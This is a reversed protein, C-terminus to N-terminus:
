FKVQGMYAQSKEDSFGYYTKGMAAAGTHGMWADVVFQPIGSDVSVTEFHHRLSHIVFGDNKRGVPMGLKKALAQFKENLTRIDIPHGGQPYKPSPAATFYYSRNNKPMTTLYERLEPHIPVKRAARTKPVWGDHAEVHIWGKELDVDQPRLMQLEGARLGTFGLMALQVQRQGHAAQLIQKVQTTTPTRKPSVYPEVVKCARLPDRELLDRNVCWRIFTKVVMMAVFVTKVSRNKSRESRYQDFLHPSVQKLTHAGHRTLFTTFLDLECTYKVLTKKARGESKRNIMFQQVADAISIPKAPAAYDGTALESELRMARQRAVKVNATKLSRHRHQGNHWFDATWTGRKGRRTITVRDGIRTRDASETTSDHM